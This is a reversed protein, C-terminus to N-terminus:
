RSGEDAIARNVAARFAQCEREGLDHGLSGFAQAASTTRSRRRSSGSERIRRWAIRRTAAGVMIPPCPPSRRQRSHATLRERHCRRTAWAAAFIASRFSVAITASTREGRSGNGRAPTRRKPPFSPLLRSSRAPPPAKLRHPPANIVAQTPRTRRRRACGAAGLADLQAWRPPRGGAFRLLPALLPSAKEIM